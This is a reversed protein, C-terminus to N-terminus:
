KEGTVEIQTLIILLYFQYIVRGGQVSDLVYKTFSGNLLERYDYINFTM